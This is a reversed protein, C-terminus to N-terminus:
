RFVSRFVTPPEADNFHPRVTYIADGVAAATTAQGDHPAIGALTASVWNDTSVLAVVRGGEASNQV